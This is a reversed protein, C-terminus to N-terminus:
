QQILLSLYLHLPQLQGLQEDSPWAPRSSTPKARSRNSTSAKRYRCSRCSFVFAHQYTVIGLLPWTGEKTKLKSCSLRVREVSGSRCSEMRLPNKSMEDRSRSLADGTWCATRVRIFKTSLGLYTFDKFCNWPNRSCLRFYTEIPSPAPLRLASTLFAM